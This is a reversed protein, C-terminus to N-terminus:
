ISTRKLLSELVKNMRTIEAMIMKKSTSSRKSKSKYKKDDYETKPSDKGQKTSSSYQQQSANGRGNRIPINNTGTAVKKVSRSKARNNNPSSANTSKTRESSKNYASKM